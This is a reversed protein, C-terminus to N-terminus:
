GAMEFTVGGGYTERFVDALALCRYIHGLGQKRGGDGRFMIERNTHTETKRRVHSNIKLLNPEKLLLKVVDRLDVEGPLSKLRAYLTELFELDAPTDVSIRADRIQEELPIEVYATKCFGPHRKFFSSVHERAYPDDGAEVSLKRLAAVTFPDIGEHICPVGPKVTVFDAEREMLTQLSRDILHPDVLPADGTIRLIIDPSYREAAMLHRQLVNEEPGRILSIGERAAFGELVDDAPNTTTAVVISNVRKTKRLRHLIHWLLPKGALLALVKGPMRRSAMRAEIVALVNRKM